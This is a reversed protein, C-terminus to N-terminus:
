SSFLFFLLHKPVVHLHTFLSLIKIKPHIIRNVIICPLDAANTESWQIFVVGTIARVVSYIKRYTLLPGIALSLGRIETKTLCDTNTSVHIRWLCASVFLVSVYFEWWEWLRLKMRKWQKIFLGPRTWNFLWTCVNQSSTIVVIIHASITLAPSKDWVLM